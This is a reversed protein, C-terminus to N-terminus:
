ELVELVGDGARIEVGDPKTSGARMYESWTIIGMSQWHDLITAIDEKARAITQRHSGIDCAAFITEYPMQPSFNKGMRRARIYNFVFDQLTQRIAIRGATLNWARGRKKIAKVEQSVTQGMFLRESIDNVINLDNSILYLIERNGNITGDLKAFSIIPYAGGTASFGGWVKLPENIKFVIDRKLAEMSEALSKKQPETPRSTGAGHRMARYLQGLTFYIRGEQTVQGDRRFKTICEIIEKEYPTIYGDILSFIAEEGTIPSTGLYIEKGNDNNERKLMERVVPSSNMYNQGSDKAKMIKMLEARNQEKLMQLDRLVIAAAEASMGSIIKEINRNDSLSELTKIRKEEATMTKM